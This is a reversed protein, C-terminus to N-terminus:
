IKNQSKLRKYIAIIQKDSRRDVFSKTYKKALVARMVETNTM